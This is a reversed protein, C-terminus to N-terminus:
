PCSTGTPQFGGSTCTYTMNDQGCTSDGCDITVAGNLGFGSCQCPGCTTGTPQFNDQSVCQYTNNDQGCTTDGCNITVSGSAGTGSCTCGSCTNGTPQFMDQSACLYSMSDQGCTTQGCSVTVPGNIGVGSCTCGGSTTSGTAGTTSGCASGTPQFNDQSVCAYTNNDQGCTTDGCEITVPGSMGVGSCTCSVCPQGTPQFSDQSACLYKMQDQGCTTDGCNVTVPGNSGVGSCTCGTNGTTSGNTGTTGSCAAGTPQFSGQSACLYSMSDQGCTTDGCNITVPGNIGVGSCTCGADAGSCPSGTPSFTGDPNCQYLNGDQGCTTDGCAVSVPGSAGAGSCQCVGLLDPQNCLTGTPTFTDQASCQYVQNDQGCTTDGCNITVPGSAGTGSCTCDSIGQAVAGIARPQPQTDTCGAWATLAAVGIWGWHKKMNM